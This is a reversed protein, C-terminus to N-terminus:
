ADKTGSVRRKKLEDAYALVRTREVTYKGDAGKEPAGFKHSLMMDRTRQYPAGILAAADMVTCRSEDSKSPPVVAAPPKKSPPKKTAM